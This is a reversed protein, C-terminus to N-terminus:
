LSAKKYSILGLRFYIIAGNILAAGIIVDIFGRIDNPIGLYKISIGLGIMVALLIYYKASYINMLSTPNQFSLIRDVGKHASKGLVHRGKLHGLLLGLSIIVIATLEAGGMYTSLFDILPYDGGTRQIPLSNGILHLGLQLLFIGVALWVLGSLFILVTHSLKLM